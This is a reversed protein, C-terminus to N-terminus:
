QNLQQKCFDNFEKENIILDKSFSIVEAQILKNNKFDITLLNDKLLLNNLSKWKIIKVPFSPYIIEEKSIYVKLIRISWFYFLLIIIMAFAQWWLQWTIFVFIIFGLSAFVASFEKNRKQLFIQLLFTLTIFGIALLSINRIQYDVTSFALYLFFLIFLGIM